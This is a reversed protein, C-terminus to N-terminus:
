VIAEHHAPEPEVEVLPCLNEIRWFLPGPPLAAVKKETLAKVTLAQQAGASLPLFLFVLVLALRHRM